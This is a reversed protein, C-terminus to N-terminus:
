RRFQRTSSGYSLNLFRWRARPGKKWFLALPVIHVPKGGDWSTRVVEELLDLEIRGQEVAGRKGRLLRALRATRLFLFFSRGEATLRGSVFSTVTHPNLGLARAASNVSVSCSVGEVERLSGYRTAHALTPMLMMILAITKVTSKM